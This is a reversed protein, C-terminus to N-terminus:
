CLGKPPPHQANFTMLKRTRRDLNVLDEKTWNVIGASYRVVAVAYMTDIKNRAYLHSRLIQHCHAIYEKIIEKKIEKHKINDAGLVGLCKYAGDEELSEITEGLPLDIGSSEV